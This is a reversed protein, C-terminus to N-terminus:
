KQTPPPSPAAPKVLKGLTEDFRCDACDHNEKVKGEWRAFDGQWRNIEKRGARIDKAALQIQLSEIEPSAAASSKDLMDLAANLRQTIKNFEEVLPRLLASEEPTLEAKFEKAKDAKIPTPSAQPATQAFATLAFALISLILFLKKM